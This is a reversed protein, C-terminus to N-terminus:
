RRDVIASNSRPALQAIPRPPGADPSLSPRNLVVAPPAAPRPASRWDSAPPPPRPPALPRSPVASSETGAAGSASEGRITADPQDHLLAALGVLLLFSVALGAVWGRPMRAVKSRTPASM